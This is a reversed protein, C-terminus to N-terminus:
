RDLDLLSIMKKGAVSGVVVVRDVSVIRKYDAWLYCNCNQDDGVSLWSQHGRTRKINELTKGLSELELSFAVVYKLILQFPSILSWFDM